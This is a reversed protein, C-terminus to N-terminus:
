RLLERIIQKLITWMMSANEHTVTQQTRIEKAPHVINRYDRAYHSLHYNSKCIIKEKDAVYLLENLGMDKIPYNRAKQSRSFESIDYNTKGSEIIKSLLLAEIISGCMITASKDQGTAISIACEQLDRLLVSRLGDDAVASFLAKLNDTYGIQEFFDLTVDKVILKVERQKQARVKDNNDDIKKQARLLNSKFLDKDPSIALAKTFCELADALANKHEFIVGLNNLASSNKPEKNILCEYIKQARENNSENYSYACEFACESNLIENESLYDSLSAIELYKQNTYLKVVIAKYATMSFVRTDLDETTELKKIIYSVISLITEDSANDVISDYYIYSEDPNKYNLLFEFFIANAEAYQQYYCHMNFLVAAIVKNFEDKLIIELAKIDSKKYRYIGYMESPYYLYLAYLAKAKNRRAADKSFTKIISDFIIKYEKDFEVCIICWPGDYLDHIANNLPIRDFLTTAGEAEGVNILAFIMGLYPSYSLNNNLDKEIVEKFISQAKVYDPTGRFMLSYAKLLNLYNNDYDSVNENNQIRFIFREIKAWQGAKILYEIVDKLLTFDTFGGEQIANVVSDKDISLNLLSHYIRADKPYQKLGNKLYNVAVNKDEELDAYLVYAHPYPFESNLNNLLYRRAHSGNREKNERCSYVYGLLYNAYSVTKPNDDSILKQLATTAHSFENSEIAKIIEDFMTNVGYDIVLKYQVPLFHYQMESM